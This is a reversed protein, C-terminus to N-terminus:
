AMEIGNAILYRTVEDFDTMGEDLFAKYIFYGSFVPTRHDKNLISHKYRLIQERLAPTLKRKFSEQESLQRRAVAEDVSWIDLKWERGWDGHRVRAQAYRGGPLGEPAWKQFKVQTVLESAALQAGIAFLEDLSVPPIFLDIDPYMMLDLSYSGQPQVAGYPAIIENLRVERMVVDAECRLAASREIPDEARSPTGEV